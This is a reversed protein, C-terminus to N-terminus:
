FLHEISFNSDQEWSLDMKQSEWTQAALAVEGAGSGSIM